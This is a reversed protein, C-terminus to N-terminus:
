GKRVANIAENLRRVEKVPMAGSLTVVHRKGRRDRVCIETFHPSRRDGSQGRLETDGALPNRRRGGASTSVVRPKGRLDRVEFSEARHLPIERVRGVLNRFRLVGSTLVEIRIREQVRDISRSALYLLGALALSLGFELLVVAIARGSFLDIFGAVVGILPVIAFLWGMTRTFSGQPQYRFLVGDREEHSKEAEM